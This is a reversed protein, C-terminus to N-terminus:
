SLNSDFLIQSFLVCEGSHALACTHLVRTCIHMYLEAATWGALFTTCVSRRFATGEILGLSQRARVRSTNAHAHTHTSHQALCIINKCRLRLCEATFIYAHARRARSYSSTLSIIYIITCGGHTLPAIVQHHHHLMARERERTHTHIHTHRETIM